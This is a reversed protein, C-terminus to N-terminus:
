GFHGPTVAIFAPFDTFILTTGLSLRDDNLRM